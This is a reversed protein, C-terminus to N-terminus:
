RRKLFVIFKGVEEMKLGLVMFISFFVPTLVSRLFCIRFFAVGPGLLRFSGFPEATFGGIFAVVFGFMLYGKEASPDKLFILYLLCTGVIIFILIPIGIWWLSLEYTFIVEFIELGFIVAVGLIILVGVWRPVAALFESLRLKALTKSDNFVRLFCAFIVGYIVFALAYVMPPWRIWPLIRFIELEQGSLSAQGIILTIVDSIMWALSFSVIGLLLWRKRVKSIMHGSISSIGGWLIAGVWLNPLLILFPSNIISLRWDWEWGIVRTILLVALYTLFGIKVFNVMRLGEGNLKRLTLGAAFSAILPPSLVAIVGGISAFIETSPPLRPLILPISLGMGSLLVGFGIGVAISILYNKRLNIGLTWQWCNKNLNM